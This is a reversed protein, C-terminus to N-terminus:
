QLEKLLLLLPGLMFGHPVRMWRGTETAARLKGRHNKTYKCSSLHKKKKRVDM